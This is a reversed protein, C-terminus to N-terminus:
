TFAGREEGCDSLDDVDEHVQEVGRGKWIKGGLVFSNCLLRGTRRRGIRGGAAVAAKRWHLAAGSAEKASTLLLDLPSFGCVPERVWVFHYYVCM